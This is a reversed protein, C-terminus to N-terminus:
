AIGIEESEAEEKKLDECLRELTAPIDDADMPSPVAERRGM